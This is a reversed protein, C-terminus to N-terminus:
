AAGARQRKVADQRGGQAPAGAGLKDACALCVAYKRYGRPGHTLVMRYEKLEKNCKLCHQRHKAM